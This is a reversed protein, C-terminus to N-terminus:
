PRSHPGDNTARSKATMFSSQKLAEILNAHLEAIGKQHNADGPKPDITKDIAHKVVESMVREREADTSSSSDEGEISVDM